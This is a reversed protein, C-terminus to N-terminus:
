SKGSVCPTVEVSAVVADTAGVTSYLTKALAAQSKNDEIAARVSDKGIKVALAGSAAAAVGFAKAAKAGFADIRKGLKAIDKQAAKSGKDSYQTLIRAVVAGTAM